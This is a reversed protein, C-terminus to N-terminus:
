LQMFLMTKTCIIYIFIHLLLSILYIERCNVSIQVFQRFAAYNHFILCCLLFAATILANLRLRATMLMNMHLAPFTPFNEM